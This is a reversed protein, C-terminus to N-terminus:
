KKTYNSFETTTQVNVAQGIFKAQINLDQYVPFYRKAEENKVYKVVLDLKDANLIKIKVPKENLAQVQELKKTKLNITMYSRCDKMFAADKAITAPDVKYSIVLQDGSEKEIKYSSDDAKSATQPKVQNKRFTNIDGKSPTKGDISVVTWQEEKPSSPDFKAVTVSTKGATITTQKFDYAFNEPEQTNEMNLISADIGHKSFADLVASKQASASFTGVVLLFLASLVTKGCGQLQSKVKESTMVKTNKM